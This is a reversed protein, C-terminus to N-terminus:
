PKREQTHRIVCDLDYNYDTIMHFIIHFNNVRRSYTAINEHTLPLASLGVM